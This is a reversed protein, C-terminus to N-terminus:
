KCGCCEASSLEPFMIAVGVDVLLGNHMYPFSPRHTFCLEILLSFLSLLLARSM